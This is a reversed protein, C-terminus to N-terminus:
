LPTEDEKGQRQPRDQVLRPEKQLTTGTSPYFDPESGHISCYMVEPWQHVIEQTGNGHHLDIDVIAVYAILAFAAILLVWATIEHWGGVEPQVLAVIGLLLVMFEVFCLVEELVDYLDNVYPHYLMDTVLVVVVAALAGVSQRLGNGQGFTSVMVFIVKRGM